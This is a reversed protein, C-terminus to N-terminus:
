GTAHNHTAVRPGIRQLDYIVFGPYNVNSMVADSEAIRRGEVKSQPYVNCYMYAYMIRM